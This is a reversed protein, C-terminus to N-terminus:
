QKRWRTLLMKMRIRVRRDAGASAWASKSALFVVEELQLFDAWKEKIHERMEEPTEWYYFLSFIQESERVFWGKASAEKIANNASEDDALGTPLDTLRGIEHDARGSKVEVPWRDALPRLDLLVGGPILTRRIEELAHVM